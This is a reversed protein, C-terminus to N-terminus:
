TFRIWLKHKRMLTVLGKEISTNGSAGDLASFINKESISELETDATKLMKFLLM